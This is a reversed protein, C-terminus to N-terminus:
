QVIFEVRGSLGVHQEFATIFAEGGAESAQYVNLHKKNLRKQWFHALISHVSGTAPDEDIGIWPCFARLLYDYEPQDSAATIVIEEIGNGYELLQKFVPQVKRLVGADNLEIFICGLETCWGATAYENLGLSHLLKGSVTIPQLEYRPYALMVLDGKKAATVTSGNVTYLIANISDEISFIVKSAALSAHGCVTIEMLPTFYRIAYNHRDPKGKQIFATVPYDLEKAISLMQAEPLENELVCVGTANGKANKGTFARVHQINLIMDTTM